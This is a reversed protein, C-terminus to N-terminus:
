YELVTAFGRSEQRQGKLAQIRREYWEVQRQLDARRIINTRELEELEREVGNREEELRRQEKTLRLGKESAEEQPSQHSRSRALRAQERRVYADFQAMVKREWSM